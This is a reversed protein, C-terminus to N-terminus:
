TVQFSLTISAGKKNVFDINGDIQDCLDKVIGLGMGINESTLNFGPGNDEFCVFIENGVRFCKVNIQPSDNTHGFAYKYSNTIIENAILGLPVGKTLDIFIEEKEIKFIVEKDYSNSLNSLLSSLFDGLNIKDVEQSLLLQNQVASMSFIKDKLENFLGKHFDDNSKLQQLNVLGLIVSINNKVRHNIESILVDKQRVLSELELRYKKKKNTELAISILQALSQAFKMDEDTWKRYKNTQEFCVVGIMNGESRIPIDIMSKIENPNLYVEVLEENLEENVADDSVIIENKVLGKFYEPLDKRTLPLEVNYVNGEKVYSLLSELVTLDENFVWANARQCGLAETALKLIEKLSQKVEGDRLSKSKSLVEIADIFKILPVKNEM